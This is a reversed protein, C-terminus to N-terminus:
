DEGQFTYSPLKLFPLVSKIVIDSPLALQLTTSAENVYSQHQAKYQVINLLVNTIWARIAEAKRGVDDDDDPYVSGAPATPLIQNISAIEENMDNKWEELLLANITEHLIAGEVLDVHKMDECGQFIDNDNIMGDKLPITIRELSMCGYFASSGISELEKGFKVNTLADCGSFARIEVIKISPLNISRLSDCIGFACVGIIELKGCEVDTLADCGWFAEAGVVEVGPMIVLRLSRCYSFAEDKVKKVGDHFVVETINPHGKFAQAPIVTVSEDIRVRTVHRPVVGGTFIYYEDVAMM